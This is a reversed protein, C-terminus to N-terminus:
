IFSVCCYKKGLDNRGVVTSTLANYLIQYTAQNDRTERWHQLMQFAREYAHQQYDLELQSLESEEVGLDRGLKRWFPSVDNGLHHLEIDKPIGPKM